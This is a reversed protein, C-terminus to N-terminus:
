HVESRRMRIVLMVGLWAATVDLLVDWPSGTRLRTM